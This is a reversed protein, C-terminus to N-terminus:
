LKEFSSGAAFGQHIADFVMAPNLADGVVHCTLGLEEAVEQLPNQPKTGVALVVTDAELEEVKGDCEMRLGSETIELVKAATRTTVAYRKVDQMMAWRTSKGFNTGLKDIM